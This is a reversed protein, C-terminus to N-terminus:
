KLENGIEKLMEDLMEEPDLEETYYLRGDETNYKQAEEINDAFEIILANVEGGLATVCIVNGNPLLFCKDGNITVKEYM